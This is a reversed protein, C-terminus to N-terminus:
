KELGGPMYDSHLWFTAPIHGSQLRVTALIYLPHAPIGTGTWEWSHFGRIGTGSNHSHIKENGEQEWIKPIPYNWERGMESNKMKYNSNSNPIQLSISSQYRNWNSLISIYGCCGCGIKLKNNNCLNSEILTCLPPSVAMKLNEPASQNLSM